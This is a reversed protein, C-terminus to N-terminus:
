CRGQALGSKGTGPYALHTSSLELGFPLAPLPRPFSCGVGGALSPSQTGGLASGSDSPLDTGAQGLSHEGVSAHAVGLGVQVCM